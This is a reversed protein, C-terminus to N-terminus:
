SMGETTPFKLARIRDEYERILLQTREESQARERRLAEDKATVETRLEALQHELREIRQRLEANEVRYPVVLIAAAESIDKVVRAGELGTDIQIKDAEAEAKRAEASLKEREARIRYVGVVGGIVTGLMALLSVVPAVWDFM